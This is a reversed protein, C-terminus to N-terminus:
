KRLAPLYVRYTATEELTPTPTPVLYWIEFKPRLASSGRKENAYFYAITQGSPTGTAWLKIGFQSSPNRVWRRVIKTVDWQKWGIEPGLVVPDSGKGQRDGPVGNGGPKDWPTSNTARYWTAQRENWPRNMGYARVTLEGTGGLDDYRHQYLSLTAKLVQTNTPLHLHTLYFDLFISRVEGETDDLYLYLNSSDGRADNPQYRDLHVDRAGFYGDIGQQVTTWQSGDPTFTWTPTPTPPTVKPPITPKRTPTWTPTPPTVGPQPTATHTPISLERLRISSAKDNVGSDFNPEDTTFTRMPNNYEANEYLTVEYRGIYSGRFKLSSAGDSLWNNFNGFNPEDSLFTHCRGQYYPHEYLVIGNSGPACGASPTPTLTPTNTPGQPDSATIYNNRIMYESGGPGSVTLRVTYIGASYTHDHYASCSTGMQGDGYNWSCSAINATDVIHMSVTLPALGSQPWADFEASLSPLPQTPTSTPTPAPCNGPFIQFSSAKNDFWGLSDLDGTVDVSTSSFNPQEYLRICYGPKVRISTAKGGYNWHGLDHIQRDSAFPFGSYNGHEYLTVTWPDRRKVRLSSAVNPPINNDRFHDDRGDFVDHRGGYNGHEYLVASWHDVIDISEADNDNFGSNGWTSADQTFLTCHDDGAHGGENRCLYVGEDVDPTPESSVIFYLDIEPGVHNPHHWIKWKSYYTGTNNPATMPNNFYFKYQSNSLPQCGQQQNTGYLKGDLNDLYDQSCDLSFGSTQVIVEPHFGQGFSMGDGQPWVRIVTVEQSTSPTPTDTPDGPRPTPTDTPDPAGSRTVRHMWSVHDPANWNLSVGFYSSPDIANSDSSGNAVTLHLHVIQDGYWVRDGQYGLLRNLDVNQWLLGPEIYSQGTAEDAMHFYHTWIGIDSHEIRLGQQSGRPDTYIATVKGPYPPYIPNGKSGVNGTGSTNTWIDIGNHGNRGYIYGLYGNSPWLFLALPSAKSDGGQSLGLVLLVSIFAILVRQATSPHITGNM